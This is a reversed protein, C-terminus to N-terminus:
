MREVQSNESSCMGTVASAFRDYLGNTVRRRLVLRPREVLGHQDSELPFEVLMPSGRDGLDAVTAVFTMVKNYRLLKVRDVVGNRHVLGSLSEVFVAVDHKTSRYPTINAAECQDLVENSPVIFVMELRPKTRLAQVLHPLDQRVNMMGIGSIHLTHSAASHILQYEANRLGTDTTSRLLDVNHDLRDNDLSEIWERIEARAEAPSSDYTLRFVGSLDSPPTISRHAILLTRSLGLEAWFWGLEIWINERARPGLDPDTLLRGVDDPTALVVAADCQRVVRELEAPILGGLKRARELLRTTVGLDTLVGRLADRASADRGFVLFVERGDPM